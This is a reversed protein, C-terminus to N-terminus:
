CGGPGGSIAVRFQLAGGACGGSPGLPQWFEAGRFEDALADCCGYVRVLANMDSLASLAIDNEDQESLAEGEEPLPVCRYVGLEIVAQWGPPCSTPTVLSLSEEPELRVLRVWADGQGDDCECDCGDMTPTVVSHRVTVRCVKGSTSRALEAYLCAKLAVLLPAVLSDSLPTPTTM